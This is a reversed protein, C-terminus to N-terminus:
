FLCESVIQVTLCIPFPPGIDIPSHLWRVWLLVMIQTHKCTYKGPLLCNPHHPNSYSLPTHPPPPICLRQTCKCYESMLFYTLSEAKMRVSKDFDRLSFQPSDPQRLPSVFFFFFSCATHQTFAAPSVACLFASVVWEAAFWATLFNQDCDDNNDLPKLPLRRISLARTREYWPRIILEAWRKPSKARWWCLVSELWSRWDVSGSAWLHQCRRHLCHRYATRYLHNPGKWKMTSSGSLLSPYDLFDFIFHLPPLIGFFKLCRSSFTRFLRICLVLLLNLIGQQGCLKVWFTLSFMAAGGVALHLPSATASLVDVAQHLSTWSFCNRGLETLNVKNIPHM